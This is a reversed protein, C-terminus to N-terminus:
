LQSGYGVAVSYFMRVLDFEFTLVTIEIHFTSIKAISCDNKM